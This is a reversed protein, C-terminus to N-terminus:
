LGFLCVCVSQCVCVCVRASVVFINGRGCVRSTIVEKKLVDGIM